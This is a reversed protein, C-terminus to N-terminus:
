QIAEGMMALPSDPQIDQGLGSAAQGAQGALEM